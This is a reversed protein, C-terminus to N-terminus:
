SGTSPFQGDRPIKTAWVGIEKMMYGECREVLLKQPEPSNKFEGSGSFFQHLTSKLLECQTRYQIWLEKFRCFACVSSVATVSCGFATTIVKYALLDMNATLIPILASVAACLIMAAIYGLRNRRSKRDYWNIESLLRGSIYHKLPCSKMGSLYPSFEDGPRGAPERIGIM